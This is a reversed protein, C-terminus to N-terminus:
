HGRGRTRGDRHPPRDGLQDITRGSLISEPQTRIPNRRRDAGADAAKVLLWAENKGTRIRALAYGGKLKNGELWVAAHGAELAQELPLEEDRRQSLNRYTGSDWV